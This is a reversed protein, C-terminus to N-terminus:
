GHGNAGDEPKPKAGSEPKTAGPDPEKQDEAPPQVSLLDGVNQELALLYEAISWAVEYGNVSLTIGSVLDPSTEFQFPGAFAFIERAALEIAKQQGEPLPFTSRVLAPGDAARFANHLSNKEEENLTQCRRIFAEVMHEELSEAVLASLTKRAIAFAEDRTRRIIEDKLNNFDNRMAEQQRARFDDSAKRAEEILRQRETQAELTATSLLAKRQQAFEENKNKFEDSERQAEEHKAEADALGAAIRKERADIANLIPTYLFRKMLWVLILFNVVQAIVTFWDILM